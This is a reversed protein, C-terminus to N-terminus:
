EERWSVIRVGGAERRVHSAVVHAASRPGFAEVYIMLMGNRDEGPVGDADMVDDAIWVAVRRSSGMDPLPGWAVLRWRPTDPGVPWQRVAAANMEATRADLDVTEGPAIAMNRAGGPLFPIGGQSPWLLSTSDRGIADVALRAAADAAYATQASRLHATAIRQETHGVVALGGALSGVAATLLLVLMVM